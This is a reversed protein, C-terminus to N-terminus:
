KYFMGKRINEEVVEIYHDRDTRSQEHWFGLAHLFEHAVVARVTCGPINLSLIQEGPNIQM